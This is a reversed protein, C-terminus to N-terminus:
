GLGSRWLRLTRPFVSNSQEERAAAGARAKAMVESILVGRSKCKPRFVRNLASKAVLKLLVVSLVAHPPYM